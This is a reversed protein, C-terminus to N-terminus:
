VGDISALATCSPDAPAAGCYANLLRNAMFEIAASDDVEHPPAVHRVTAPYHKVMIDPDPPTEIPDSVTPTAASVPAATEIDVVRWELSPRLELYGRIANDKDVAQTNISDILETIYADNIIRDSEFVQTEFVQTATSQKLAATTLLLEAQAENLGSYLLYVVLTAAGLALMLVWEYWRLGITRFLVSVYGM